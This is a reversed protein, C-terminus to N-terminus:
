GFSTATGRRKLTTGRREERTPQHQSEKSVPFPSQAATSPLNSKVLSASLSGYLRSQVLLPNYIDFQHLKDISEAVTQQVDTPPEVQGACVETPLLLERVAVSKLLLTPGPSPLLVFHGSPAVINSTAETEPTLCALLALKKEKLLCCFANFTQQNDELDDWDMKWCSTAKVILPLGYLVSECLGDQKILSLARLTRVPLYPASPRASCSSPLSRLPTEQHLKYCSAFPILSPDLIREQMDCKLVLPWMRDQATSVEPLTIHLHERDTGSDMLWMKFFNELSLLDSEVQLLELTGATAGSDGSSDSVESTQSCSEIGAAETSLLRTDDRDSLLSVVQMKKLNDLNLDKIFKELPKVLSLGQKSTFVTIELQSWSGATQLLNQSQRKFQSIAEHLSQLLVDTGRSADGAAGLRLWEGHQMNCLEVLAAHLRTFSSAGKIHQLPFVVEPYSDTTALLGFFPVRCPGPLTCVISFLHELAQQINYCTDADLDIGFDVLVIHATGTSFNLDFGLSGSSDCICLAIVRELSAYRVLQQLQPSAARQELQQLAPLIDAAPLFPLAM